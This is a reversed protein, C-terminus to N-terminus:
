GFDGDISSLSTSSAHEDVTITFHPVDERHNDDRHQGMRFEPSIVM